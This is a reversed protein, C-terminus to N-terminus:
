VICLAEAPSNCIGEKQILIRFNEGIMVTASGPSPGPPAPGGGRIKLGFHPRFPWFFNKQSAPGGRIEPDPHGGGGGGGRIQLHRDAM